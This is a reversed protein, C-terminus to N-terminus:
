LKQATGYEMGFMVLSSLFIILRWFVMHPSGLLVGFMVVFNGCSWYPNSACESLVSYKVHIPFYCTISKIVWPSKTYDVHIPFYIGISAVRHDFSCLTSTQQYLIGMCYIWCIQTYDVIILSIKSLVVVYANDFYLQSFSRGFIISFCLICVLIM